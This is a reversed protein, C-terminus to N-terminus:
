FHWMFQESARAYRSYGIRKPKKMDFGVGNDEIYLSVEQAITIIINVETAAAYKMINNLSEQCLRYTTIELIHDLSIKGRKAM